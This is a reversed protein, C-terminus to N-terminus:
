AGGPNGAFAWSLDPCVGLAIYDKLKLESRPQVPDKTTQCHLRDKPNPTRNLTKYVKQIIHGITEGLGVPIQYEQGDLENTVHIRHNESM